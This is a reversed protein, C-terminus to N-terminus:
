IIGLDLSVIGLNSYDSYNDCNEVNDCDYAKVAVYIDQYPVFMQLTQLDINIENSYGIDYAIINDMTLQNIPFSYPASYFKYGKVKCENDWTINVVSKEVSIQLTPAVLNECPKKVYKDIFDTFSTLRTYVGYYGALACSEGWSMIGIQQWKGEFKILLPGGSDGNCGDTGGQKFGACLMSDTVDDNYSRNCIENSVIPLSTYQLTDSFSSTNNVITQGWGMVSALNGIQINGAKAIPIFETQTSPHKLKLLAIDALPNEDNYSQYEPHIIIQEVDIIEGTGTASLTKRGLVVQIDDATENKTCHAATLVWNPAILSGGCYISNVSPEENAYILAAMWPTSFKALCSEGPTCIIRTSAAITPQWISLCILLTLIKIM